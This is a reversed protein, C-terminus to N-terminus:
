RNKSMGLRGMLGDSIMVLVGDSDVFCNIINSRM